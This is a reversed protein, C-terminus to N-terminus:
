RAALRLDVHVRSPLPSEDIRFPLLLDRAPLFLPFPWSEPTTVGESWPIVTLRSGEELFLATAAYGELRLEVWHDDDDVQLNAPTIFGSDEGDILIQAGPPTSAVLIGPPTVNVCATALLAGALAGLSANM